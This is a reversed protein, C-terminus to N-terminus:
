SSFAKGATMSQSTMPQSYCTGVDASHRLKRPLFSRFGSPAGNTNNHISGSNSRSGADTRTAWHTLVESSPLDSPDGANLDRVFEAAYTRPDFDPHDFQNVIEMFMRSDLVCLRTERTATLTGLHMWATWLAAESIWTPEPLQSVHGTISVYQMVGGPLLFYMKPQAPIEGANFVVDMTSLSLMSTACHCVRCMVQPCEETYRMFFLHTAYVPSFMEFHLEVRLAESVCMILEVNAEPISREQECLFHQANRAVRIALRSSINNESLYRRLMSLKQQRQGGIIHLRTMSSTLSSVFVTACIFAFLFVFIAFVREGINYPKVEDMGGAFQSLSWHLSTTYQYGVGKTALGFQEVWSDSRDEDANGIGYWICAILHALGCIVLIIKVMDAVITWRESRIREGLLRVVQRMRILRLLRIMRVIRFTRSAKGIREYGVRTTDMWLVESWDSIVITVDIVFWTLLYRRAIMRVRMEITGDERLVGTFFTLGLDATWFLRSLWALAMSLANEPPDFLQLPISIMDYAVLCLSYMDWCVRKPSNPNVIIRETCSKVKPEDDETELMADAFNLSHVKRQRKNRATIQITRRAGEAERDREKWEKLVEFKQDNAAHIDMSATVIGTEGNCDSPVVGLQFPQYSPVSTLFNQKKSADNSHNGCDSHSDSDRPEIHRVSGFQPQLHGRQQTSRDTDDSCVPDFHFSGSGPISSTKGINAPDAGSTRLAEIHQSLKKVQGKLSRNESHLTSAESQINDLSQNVTKIVEHQKALEDRATMLSKSIMEPLSQVAVSARKGSSHSSNGFSVKGGGAHKPSNERSVEQLKGQLEEVSRDSFRARNLSDEEEERDRDRHLPTFFSSASPSPTDSEAAELEKQKASLPGAKEPKKFLGPLSPRAVQSGRTYLTTGSNRASKERDKGEAPALFTVSPRVMKADEKVSPLTSAKLSVASADFTDEEAGEEEEEHAAESQQGLKSPSESPNSQLDDSKQGPDEGPTECGSESECDGQPVFCLHDACLPAASSSSADQACPEAETHLPAKTSALEGVM